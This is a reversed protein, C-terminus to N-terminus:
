KSMLSSVQEKMISIENKQEQLQKNQEILHLTLEEIKQLLKINTEALLIGESEMEKASAIEPLHKNAKVYQDLEELPTLDYNEEFVFDAGANVTVKIEQAHVKGAVTLKSDPNITGIGVYGNSDIKMKTDPGVRFNIPAADITSIVLGAPLSSDDARMISWGISEDSSYGKLAGTRQPRQGRLDLTPIDTGTYSPTLTGVGIDGNERISFRLDTGGTRFNIPAADKTSINLGDPASSDDARMITWGISEDSSYGKLAGTRQPRQGRLDLTPIDTGLQSPSTTGIGVDGGNYHIAGNSNPTSFQALARTTCLTTLSLIFVSSKILNTISTM